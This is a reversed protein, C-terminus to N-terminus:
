SMFFQVFRRSMMSVTKNGLKDFVSMVKECQKELSLTEKETTPADDSPHVREPRYSRIAFICYLSALFMCVLLFLYLLTTSKTSRTMHTLSSSEPADTPFAHHHHTNSMNNNMNNMNMNILILPHQKPYNVCKNHV